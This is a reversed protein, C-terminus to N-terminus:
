AARHEGVRLGDVELVRALVPGSRESGKEEIVSIAKRRHHSESDVLAVAEAAALASEMDCHDLAELSALRVKTNPDKKALGALQADAATICRRKVEKAADLRFDWAGHNLHELLQNGSTTKPDFARGALAVVPLSLAFVLTLVIWRM